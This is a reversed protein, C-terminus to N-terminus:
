TLEKQSKKLIDISKDIEKMGITCPPTFRIEGFERHTVLLLGNKFAQNCLDFGNYKLHKFDLQFSIMMGVQNVLECGDLETLRDKIYNGKSSIAKLLNRELLDLWRLAMFCVFPSGAFTSFHQGLGICEAIDSTTLCAGMPFGMSIRKGLTMIDPQVEYYQAASYEGTWGSGTQIEDFVLLMGNDWCYKKITELFDKGYEEVCNNGLIPAVFIAATKDPDIKDQFDHKDVVGYYETEQLGFGIKHYPSFTSDSLSMSGYTRGHFNRRFTYCMKKDPLDYEHWFKRSIKLATEISETGSNTFFIKEFGYVECLKIACETRVDNPYIDPLQHPIKLSLFDILYKEIDYGAGQTSEDGWCDILWRKQKEDWLEVGKRRTIELDYRNINDFFPNM